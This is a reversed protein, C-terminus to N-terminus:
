ASSPMRSRTRDRPSPSTYLLCGDPRLASRLTEHRDVWDLLATRWAREDLPGDLDFGVALWSPDSTAGQEARARVHAQQLHSPPRPDPEPEAGDPPSVCWQAAEGPRVGYDAIETFRM